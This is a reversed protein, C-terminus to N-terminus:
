VSPTAATSLTLRVGSNVPQPVRQEPMIYSFIGEQRRNPSINMVDKQWFVM